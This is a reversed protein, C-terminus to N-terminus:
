IKIRNRFYKLNFDDYSLSKSKNNEFQSTISNFRSNCGSDERAGPIISFEHSIGAIRVASIAVGGLDNLLVRRLQNGVTLGQGPKLSSISFQGHCEGTIEFGIGEIARIATERGSGQGKVFIEINKMGTSLANLAAKEAATQAAFPTSKRAGKFGSSGASAWAITDGTLNTITIITNNFTSHIHVIGSIFKNKKSTSKRNTKVMYAKFYNKGRYCNIENLRKINLGNFRRLDGELKLDIEEITQRLSITQDTTLDYVRTNLDINAIQIIRKASTLGIGHIYTLAYLIKKNKPLDVGVLRIM